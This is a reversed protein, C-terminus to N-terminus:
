DNVAVRMLPKETTQSMNTVCCNQAYEVANRLTDDAAHTYRMSMQINSHGLLRAITTVNCGADGLRTAFTHRLDHFHFDNIGADSCAAVFAKKVDVLGEGARRKVIRRSEFVLDGTQSKRQEILVERVSQSMPIIRDRATKTNVVHIVGRLFDVNRWSLNLLEGRRMGTGLALSVLAHLHKRRGTLQAMLRTEEDVSLYRNRQNDVRLKRVKRCPNSAAQELEVALTFIRSLVALEMNVSAPSRTTGRRTIFQARDRKWKEIALPSVERLAKGGFKEAWQNAIIEDNRWTRKNAKAWPLYTENVFEALDQNGLQSTGYTGQFVQDRAKTEAQEAQFKTRAEPIAERYRAGRIQFDFYWHGGRKRVTL